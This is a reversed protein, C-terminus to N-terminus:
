VIWKKFVDETETVEIMKAYHYERSKDSAGDFQFKQITFLDDPSTKLTVAQSYSGTAPKIRIHNDYLYRHLKEFRELNAEGKLNLQVIRSAEYETDSLGLRSIAIKYGPHNFNTENVPLSSHFSTHSQNTSFYDAITKVLMAPVSEFIMAGIFRVAHTGMFALVNAQSNLPTLLLPSVIMWKLTQRKDIDVDNIKIVNLKKNM